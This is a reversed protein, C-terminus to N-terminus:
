TFLLQFYNGSFILFAMNFQKNRKILYRWDQVEILSLNGVKLKIEEAKWFKM